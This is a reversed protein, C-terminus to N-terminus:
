AILPQLAADLTQESPGADINRFLLWREIHEVWGGPMLRTLPALTELEIVNGATYTETNSGFDPYSAGEVWPFRKM